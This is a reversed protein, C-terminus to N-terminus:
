NNSSKYRNRLKSKVCELRYYDGEIKCEALGLDNDIINRIKASLAYMSYKQRCNTLLKYVRSVELRVISGINKYVIISVARAVEEELNCARTIPVSEMSVCGSPYQRSPCM